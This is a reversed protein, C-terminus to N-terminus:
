SLGWVRTALALMTAAATGAMMALYAARFPNVARGGATSYVWEAERAHRPIRM